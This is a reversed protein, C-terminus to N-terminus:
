SRTKTGEHNLEQKDSVFIQMIQQVQQKLKDLNGDNNIVRDAVALRQERSAQLAIIKEIQAASSQDRQCARQIQQEQPTDIVWIEDIYEPKHGKKHIGEVLLPIAVLLFPIPNSNQSQWVLDTVQRETETQILPHLIAELQKKAEPDNFILERLLGRNLTGDENLISKGFTNCIQQLGISGPTVAQRALLDTDITPINYDAFLQSLTSKGSGIGGTLGIVKPISSLGPLDPRAQNLLPQTARKAM